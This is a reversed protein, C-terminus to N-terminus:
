DRSRYYAVPAHVPRDEYNKGASTLHRYLAIALDLRKAQRVVNILNNTSLFNDTLFTFLVGIVILVPLMGAIQIIARVMEKRAVAEVTAEQKPIREAM